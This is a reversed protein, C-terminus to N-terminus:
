AEEPCFTQIFQNQAMQEGYTTFIDHGPYVRTEAPLRLAQLRRMSRVMEAHSGGDLDTRGTDGCFLTDGTFFADGCLLCVSGRSHGPTAIVRFTLEDVTILEGNTYGGDVRKLPFLRDGRVDETGCRIPAGYEDRLRGAAGVHDFHGHTCLQLRLSAGSQTLVEKYQQVSAAPDIIVASGQQSVVVFSNTCLPAPGTIHYIKM